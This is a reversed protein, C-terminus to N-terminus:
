RILLGVVLGIAAGVLAGRKRASAIQGRRLEDLEERRTREVDFMVIVSDRSALTLLAVRNAAELASIRERFARTEAGHQALLGDVTRAHNAELAALAEVTASDAGATLSDYFEGARERLRETEQVGALRVSDLRQATYDAVLLARGLETALSDGRAREAGSREVLAAISDTTVEVQQGLDGARESQWLFALFACVFLFWAIRTPQASM